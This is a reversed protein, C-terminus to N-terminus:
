EQKGLIVFHCELDPDGTPDIASGSIATGGIAIGHWAISFSITDIPAVKVFRLSDIANAFHTTWVVKYDAVASFGTALTVVARNPATGVSVSAVNFTPGNHYPPAATVVHGWGKVINPGYLTNVEPATPAIGIMQNGGRLSLSPYRFGGADAHFGMKAYFDNGAFRSPYGWTDDDFVGGSPASSVYFSPGPVMGPFEIRSCDYSSSDPVWKTTGHDWRANVTRITRTTMTPSSINTAQYWRAYVGVPTGSDEVSETGILRYAIGTDVTKNIAGDDVLEISGFVNVKATAGVRLESTGNLNIQGGTAVNIDGGDNINVDGNTNVDIDGGDEVVISAGSEDVNIVGDVKVNLEGDIINIAPKTFTQGDIDIRGDGVVKIYSDEAIQIYSDEHFQFSTSFWVNVGVSSTAGEGLHLQAANLLKITNSGSFTLDASSNFTVTGDSDVTIDHFHPM